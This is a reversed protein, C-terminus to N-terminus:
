GSPCENKDEEVNKYATVLSKKWTHRLLTDGYGHYQDNREKKEYFRKQCNWAFWYWRPHLEYLMDYYDHYGPVDFHQRKLPTPCVACGTRVYGLDYLPNKPCGTEEFYAKVDGDTLFLMPNFYTIDHYKSYNKIPYDCNRKAEAKRVGTTAITKGHEHMWKSLPKNKLQTCCIMKNRCIGHLGVRTCVKIFPEIPKTVHYDTLGWYDVMKDIFEYSEKFQIHTNEFIVCIDSGFMQVALDVLMTSDDGGSFGFVIKGPMAKYLKLHKEVQDIQTGGTIRGQKAMNDIGPIDSCM